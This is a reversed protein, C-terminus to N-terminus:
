EEVIELTGFLVVIIETRKGKIYSNRLEDLVRLKRMPMVIWPSESV